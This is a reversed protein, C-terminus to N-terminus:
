LPATQTQEHQLFTNIPTKAGLWKAAMEKNVFVKTPPAPKLVNMFFNAILKQGLGSIVFAIRTHLHSYPNNAMYRMTELPIHSFALLRIDSLVSIQEGNTFEYCQKFHAKLHNLNLEVHEKSVCLVMKECENYYVHALDTELYKM